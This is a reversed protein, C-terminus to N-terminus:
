LKEIRQQLREVDDRIRNVARSFETVAGPRVLMPQEELLFEACNDALKRGTSHAADLAARAGGAVRGAAIDGVWHALDAEAEWRLSQTLQSIVGALNVDGELGVYSFARERNQALLPLDALKLRITLDPLACAAAPGVSGDAAVQLQIKILGTDLWAVKGAFPALSASAWPERLLLHNIGAAFASDLSAPSIFPNMTVFCFRGQGNLPPKSNVLKGPNIGGTQYFKNALNGAAGAEFNLEM